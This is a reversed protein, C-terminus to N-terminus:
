NEKKIGQVQMGDEALITDHFVEQAEQLFVSYDKYRASLHGIILRKVNALQAIKAAQKATSHMTETAREHFDETFTAEHYLLQCDKIYPLISETYATDSCYAYSCAPVPDKTLSRNKIVEGSELLLDEGDKIKRIDVLSLNYKEIKEKIINRKREKERFVFGITPIRHVLPFSFVELGQDEYLKNYTCTDIEHFVLNFSLRYYPAKFQSLVLEKLGEPSYIHLDTKRGLLDFSSILGFLGYYHDGHLHSIFIHNIRSFKVKYKRLQIQTGEGCDILFFRENVNLSHATLYRKSTPLASSSGLITVEFKM